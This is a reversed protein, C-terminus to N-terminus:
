KGKGAAKGYVLWSSAPDDGVKYGNILSVITLVLLLIGRPM